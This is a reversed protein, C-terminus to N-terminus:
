KLAEYIIENVLFPSDLYPFHTAYKIKILESYKILKNILYADGIPTINDCEGWILLTDSNILSLYNTLDENVINIFSKRMEIPISSYDSSAFLKILKNLYLKRKRNPIFCAIKKLVKYIFQKIIAKFGKKPKIGASDILILRKVLINYYGTLLISIRGGFSHAVISLNDKINVKNIFDKILSAYDYITLDRNPFSSKGFGPYDVIYITFEDKLRDILYKFTSRNDGWGPLILVNKGGNGYKRYYLKIDGNKFYM